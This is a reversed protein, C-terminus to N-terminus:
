RYVFAYQLKRSMIDPFDILYESENLNCINPVITPNFGKHNIRNKNKSMRLDYYYKSGQM